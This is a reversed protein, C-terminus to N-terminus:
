SARAQFAVAEQGEEMAENMSAFRSVKEADPEAGDELHRRALLALRSAVAAALGPLASPPLRSPSPSPSVFCVAPKM